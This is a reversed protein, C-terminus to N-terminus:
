SKMSPPWGSRNVEGPAIGRVFHHILMAWSKCASLELGRVSPSVADVPTTRALHLSRLLYMDHISEMAPVSHLAGQSTLKARKSPRHKQSAPM